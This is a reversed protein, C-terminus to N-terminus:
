GRGQAWRAVQGCVGRSRSHPAMHRAPSSRVSEVRAATL